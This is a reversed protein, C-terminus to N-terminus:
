ERRLFIVMTYIGLTTGVPVFTVSLFAAVLSLMRGAGASALLAIGALIGFIGSAASLVLWGSYILHFASMLSYPNPVRNLLTGFMVTATGAFSLMWVAVLLRFVGFVIWCLGLASGRGEVRVAGDSTM